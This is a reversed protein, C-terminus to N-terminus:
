RRMMAWWAERDYLAIRCGLVLATLILAAALLLCIWNLYHSFLGVRGRCLLRYLLLVITVVLLLGAGLLLLGSLIAPGDSQVSVNPAVDRAYNVLTAVALLFLAAALKCLELIQRRFQRLPKDSDKPSVSLLPSSMEGALARCRPCLTLHAEVAERSEPSLLDEAYLPLLDRILSCSLNNM